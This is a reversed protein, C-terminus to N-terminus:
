LILNLGHLTLKSQVDSFVFNVNLHRLLQAFTGGLNSLPADSTVSNHKWLQVPTCGLNCKFAELIVVTTDQLNCLPAEWTAGLKVSM